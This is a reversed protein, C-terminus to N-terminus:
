FNPPPFNEDVPQLVISSRERKQKGANIVIIRNKEIKFNQVLYKISRDIRSNMKKLSDKEGIYFAIYGKLKPNKELFIAFSDLHARQENWSINSKYEDFYGDALTLNPFGVTLLFLLFVILIIPKKM